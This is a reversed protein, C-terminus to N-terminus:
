QGRDQPQCWRTGCRGEVTLRVGGAEPTTIRIYDQSCGYLGGVCLTVMGVESGRLVDSDVGDLSYAM